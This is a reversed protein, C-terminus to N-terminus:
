AINDPYEILSTIGLKIPSQNNSIIFYQILDRPIRNMGKRVESQFRLIGKPLQSLPNEVSLKVLDQRLRTKIDFDM